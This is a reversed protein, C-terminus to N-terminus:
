RVGGVTRTVPVSVTRALRVRVRGWTMALTGAMLLAATVLAMWRLRRRRRESRHRYVRPNTLRYDPM